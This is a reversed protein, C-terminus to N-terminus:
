RILASLGDRGTIMAKGGLEGERDKKLADDLKDQMSGKNGAFWGQAEQNPTVWVCNTLDGGLSAAQDASVPEFVFRAKWMGMKPTVRVYYFKQPEFDAVLLNSDEGGIVYIHRGPATKQLLKTKASIIGVFSVTENVSEAVPAQIAGGFSTDRFFVVASENAQLTDATSPIATEQMYKSACGALLLVGALLALSAKRM